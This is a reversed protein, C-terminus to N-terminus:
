FIPMDRVTINLLNFNQNILGLWKQLWTSFYRKKHINKINIIKQKSNENKLWCEFALNNDKNLWVSLYQGQKKLKLKNWQESKDHVFINDRNSLQIFEGIKEGNLDNVFNLKKIQNLISDLLNLFGAQYLNKTINSFIQITKLLSKSLDIHKKLVNQDNAYLGSILNFAGIFLRNYLFKNIKIKM